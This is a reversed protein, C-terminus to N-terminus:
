KMGYAAAGLFHLSVYPEDGVVWSDHPEAPIFFLRGAKLDHIVGDAMEATAHGSLVFGIHAVTCHTAGIQKGVHTSWRWGPDYTARGITMGGLTVLDFRGLEFTRTEDPQDFRKLIVNHRDTLSELEKAMAILPTGGLDLPEPLRRFGTGEYLRIAASLFPTTNLTVRQAGVSAAYSLAAALLESGVRQGRAEPLVAMSRIYVEGGRDVAAVTGVITSGEAAIWIPGEGLRRAIEEALPTTARFGEPTYLSEFEGFASKLLFAIREADSSSARKIELMLARPCTLAV